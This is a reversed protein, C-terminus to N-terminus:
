HGPVRSTILKATSQSAHLQPDFYGFDVVGTTVNVISTETDIDNLKFNVGPHLEAFRKILAKMAPNAGNAGSGVYDGALTDKTKAAPVVAGSSCAGLVLIAAVLIGMGRGWREIKLNGGGVCVDGSRLHETLRHLGVDRM